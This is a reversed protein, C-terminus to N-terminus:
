IEKELESLRIKLNYVDYPNILSCWNWIQQKLRNIDQRIDYTEDKELLTRDEELAEIKAKQEEVIEKLKEVETILDTM